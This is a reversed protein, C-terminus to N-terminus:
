SETNNDPQDLDELISLVTSQLSPHYCLIKSISALARMYKVANMAVVDFTYIINGGEDVRSTYPYHQVILEALESAGRDMRRRKDMELHEVPVWNGQMFDYKYRM